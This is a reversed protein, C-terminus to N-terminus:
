KKTKWNKRYDNVFSELRDTEFCTEFMSFRIMEAQEAKKSNPYKKIVYEFWARIEEETYTKSM